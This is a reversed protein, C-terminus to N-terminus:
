QDNADQLYDRGNQVYDEGLFATVLGNQIGGLLIWFHFFFNRNPKSVIELISVMDM